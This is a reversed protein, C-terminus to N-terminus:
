VLLSCRAGGGPCPHVGPPPGQSCGSCRCAWQMCGPVPPDEQLGRYPSLPLLTHLPLTLSPQAPSHSSPNHLPLTLSPHPPPIHPLTACPSHSPPNHLPLTLSPQAPPTHPLTTCPSHSPPGHTSPSPSLAMHPPPTNPFHTCPSHSLPGHTHAREGTKGAGSEGSILICQDQAETKMNRYATDSIAYRCVSLSAPPTPCTMGCCLWLPTSSM